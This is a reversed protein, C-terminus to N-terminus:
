LGTLVISDILDYDNSYRKSTRWHSQVGVQKGVSYITFKMRQRASGHMAICHVETTAQKEDGEQASTVNETEEMMSLAPVTDDWDPDGENREM